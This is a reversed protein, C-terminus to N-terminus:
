IFVHFARNAPLGAVLEGLRGQAGSGIKEKDMIEQQSVLKL